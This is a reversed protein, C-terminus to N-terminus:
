ASYSDRVNVLLTKGNPVEGNGGVVIVEQGNLQPHVRNNLWTTLSWGRNAANQYPYDDVTTNSGDRVLVRVRELQWIAQEFEWFTM